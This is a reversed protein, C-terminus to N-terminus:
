GTNLTVNTLLLVALAIYVGIGVIAGFAIEYIRRLSVLFYMTMIAFFTGLYFFIDFVTVQFTQALATILQM